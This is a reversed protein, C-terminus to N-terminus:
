AWNGAFLFYPVAYRGLTPLHTFRPLVLQALLLFAFYLPWIRLTRRLYFRGIAVTGTQQAERRLLDSILFASLCFFLAVGLGGALSFAVLLHAVVRPLRAYLADDQPLTHHVFVMLFAFFRLTDLEPYYVRAATGPVASPPVPATSLAM